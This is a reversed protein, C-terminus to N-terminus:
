AVVRRSSEEFLLDEVGTMVAWHVALTDVVSAYGREGYASRSRDPIREGTGLEVWPRRAPKPEIALRKPLTLERTSVPADGGSVGM